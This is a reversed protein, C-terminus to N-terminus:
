LSDYYFGDSNLISHFAPCAQIEPAEFTLETNGYKHTLLPFKKQNM